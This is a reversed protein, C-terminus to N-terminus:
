NTCYIGSIMFMEADTKHSLPLLMFCLLVLLTQSMHQPNLHKTESCYISTFCSFVSGYFQQFNKCGVAAVNLLWIITCGHLFVANDSLSQTDINSVIRRKDVENVYLRTQINWMSSEKTLSSTFQREPTVRHLEQLNEVNHGHSIRKRWRRKGGSSTTLRRSRAKHGGVCLGPAMFHSCYRCKVACCSDSNEPIGGWKAAWFRQLTM